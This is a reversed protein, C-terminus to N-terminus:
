ELEIHEMRGWPEDHGLREIDLGLIFEQVTCFGAVSILGSCVADQNENTKKQKKSSTM